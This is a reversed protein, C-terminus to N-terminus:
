ITEVPAVGVLTFGVCASTRSREFGLLLPIARALQDQSCCDFMLDGTCVVEEVCYDSVDATDLIDLLAAWTAVEFFEVAVEAETVGVFTPAAGAKLQLQATAADASEGGVSAVIVGGERSFSITAAVVQSDHDSTLPVTTFRNNGKQIAVLSLAGLADYTLPPSTDDVNDYLTEGFSVDGRAADTYVKTKDYSLGEPYKLGGPVYATRYTLGEPLEAWMAQTRTRQDATLAALQLPYLKALVDKKYDAHASRLNFVVKPSDTGAGVASDCVWQIIDFDSPLGWVYGFRISTMPFPYRSGLSGHDLIKGYASAFAKPGTMRELMAGTIVADTNSVFTMNPAGIAADNAWGNIHVPPVDWRFPVRLIFPSTEDRVATGYAYSSASTHFVRNVVNITVSHGATQTVSIPSKADMIYLQEGSGEKRIICPGVEGCALAHTVGSGMFATAEPLDQGFVEGSLNNTFWGILMHGNWGARARIGEITGVGVPESTGTQTAGYELYGNTSHIVGGFAGELNTRWGFREVGINHHYVTVPASILSHETSVIEYVKNPNRHLAARMTEDNLPSISDGGVPGFVLTFGDDTAGAGIYVPRPELTNALQSAKADSYGCNKYAAILAARDLPVPEPSFMVPSGTSVGPLKALWKQMVAGSAVVDGVVFPGGM